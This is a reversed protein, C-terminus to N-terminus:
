QIALAKITGIQYSKIESPTGRYYVKGTGSGKIKLPGEPINCRISGTGIITCNAKSSTLWEADILGTGTCKLNAESCIGSLYITGSGTNINADVTTIDLSDAQIKGNGILRLKLKPTSAVKLLILTSDGDNRAEQLFQSYVRVTPINTMPAVAIDTTLEIKLKGKSNNEFIFVGPKYQGTYYTAIGASDSDAVYEVNIGNAVHLSTFDGVSLTYRGDAIDSQAVASISLLTAAAAIILNRIM